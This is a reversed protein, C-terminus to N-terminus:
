PFPIVRTGILNGSADVLRVRGSTLPMGLGPGMATDYEFQWSYAVGNTPVPNTTTFLDHQGASTMESWGVQLFGSGLSNVNAINPTFDAFALQVEYIQPPSALHGPLLGANMAVQLLGIRDDAGAVSFMTASVVGDIVCAQCSLIQVRVGPQLVRVGFTHCESALTGTGDLLSQLDLPITGDVPIAAAPTTPPVESGQDDRVSLASARADAPPGAKYLLRYETPAAGGAAPRLDLTAQGGRLLVQDAGGYHFSAPTVSACREVRVTMDAHGVNLDADTVTLRPRYVGPLAFTFRPDTANSDETGDGDIDWSFTVAQLSPDEGHGHLQLPTGPPVLLTEAWAWASPAGSSPADQVVLRLEAEAPPSGDDDTLRVRVRTPGATAFSPAIHRGTADDFLGDDDLDWEIATLTGGDLDSGIALLPIPTGTAATATGNPLHIMATPASPPLPAGSCLVVSAHATSTAGTNDTVTVGIRSHGPGSLMGTAEAEPGATDATGDGDFDFAYDTITGGDADVAVAHAYIECPAAAHSVWVRLAVSPDSPSSPTDSVHVIATATNSAGDADTATLVVEYRGEAAFSVSPAQVTDDTTGNGDFDWAYDVAAGDRHSVQGFFQFNSGTTGTLRDVGIQVAQSGVPVPIPPPTGGGGGGCASLGTLAILTLFSALGRRM